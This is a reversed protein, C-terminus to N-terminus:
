SIKGVRIGHFVVTPGRLSMLKRWTGEEARLKLEENDTAVIQKEDPSWRARYAESDGLKRTSGTWLTYAWLRMGTAPRAFLLENHDPSINCLYSWGTDRDCRRESVSRGPACARGGAQPSFALATRAIAM